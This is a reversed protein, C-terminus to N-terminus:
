NWRRRDYVRITLFLFVATISFYYLLASWDLIGYSFGSYRSLVCIWDLVVRIAYVEIYSNVLSLAVMALLVGITIVAASLQNETLASIFLGVAIFAAGLLIIGITRGVIESTAPGIHTVSYSGEREVTAIAYMPFFNICSILVTSVFLTLAAFFKGLVMGTLTVPTTLLLQETRLKREEAFLRMTLLPILVVMAFIMYTFYASTSYSASKITTFCCILASLVLFFGTYVYGVANIFYSRLEKCYIAFMFGYYLPAM